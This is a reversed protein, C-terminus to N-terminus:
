QRKEQKHIKVRFMCCGHAEIDALVTGNIPRVEEGSWLDHVTYDLPIDADLGLMSETVFRGIKNDSYNFFGLAIDGNELIKAFVYTGDVDHGEHDSSHLLYPRNLESDQNVAIIEKNFLIARTEEDMERIDCGIMLPSGMMAWFSFHTKYEEFSCGTIACFGKGKMGVILM